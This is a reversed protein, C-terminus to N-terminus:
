GSTPHMTYIISPPAITSHGFHSLPEPSSGTSPVKVQESDLHRLRTEAMARPSALRAMNDTNFCPPGCPPDLMSMKWMTGISQQLIADINLSVLPFICKLLIQMAARPPGNLHSAHPPQSPSSDGRNIDSGEVEVPGVTWPNPVTYIASRSASISHGFYSLPKPPRLLSTSLAKIKEPNSHPLRLAWWWTGVRVVLILAYEAIALVVLHAIDIAPVLGVADAPDPDADTPTCPYKPYAHIDIHADTAQSKAHGCPVHSIARGCLAGIHFGVAIALWWMVIWVTGADHCRAMHQDAAGASPM